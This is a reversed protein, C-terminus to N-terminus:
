KKLRLRSLLKSTAKELWFEEWHKKRALRTGKLEGGLVLGDRTSDMSDNYPSECLRPYYNFDNEGIFPLNYDAFGYAALEKTGTQENSERVDYALWDAV